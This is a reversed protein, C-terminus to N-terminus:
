VFYNNQWITQYRILEDQWKKTTWDLEQQCLVKVQELIAEGGNALILGLRTRRLLLDDLHVVSEFRLAWRCDALCFISDELMAYEKPDCTLLFGEIEKHMHKGYKNIFNLYTENYILENANDTVTGYLSEDLIAEESNAKKNVSYPGQENILKLRKELFPNATKLVDRAILKFTTLKGGSVTILGKDLWVAHDRREKSPDKSKDSGIIPRVGAYSSIIDGPTLPAVNFNENVLALLYDIETKTIKPELDLSVAHDLDTTGVVTTGQWPFIFVARKDKPHTLTLADPVPLQQKSFIIHSGRLPRVRKEKIVKMRLNDAWAGTANVVVNAKLIVKNAMAVKPNLQKPNLQASNNEVEEIGVADNVVVGCVKHTEECHHLEEAKLYNVFHGGFAKAESLVRFVLRSDDVATDTYYCAGNLNKTKLNPFLKSLQKNEIFRNDSMGALCDYVKLLATMVFRGPFRGKQLLFYYGMRSILGPYEKLLHERETLSHKTMKIDGQAIYRLGGHVMKSSRSSTGWSYDQQEILLANLGKKSAERLVGAGVIGGGVVIIDWQYNPNQKSWQILSQKDSFRLPPQIQNDQM